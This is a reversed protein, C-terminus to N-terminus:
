PPRETYSCHTGTRIAQDLHAAAAPAHSRIRSIATRIARTVNVRARESQSGLRRARGGIGVAAALEHVLFDQEARARSARETDHWQEAEALEEGLDALRRRYAARATADLVEDGAAAGVLHLEDAEATRDHGAPMSANALQVMDLAALERGPNGILLDLDRLGLIDPLRIMTGEHTLAWYGGEPILTLTAAVPTGPQDLVAQLRTMGCDAAIAGAEALAQGARDLDTGRARKRLLQAYEQLTRALLPRAELRRHCAVATVFHREAADFDGSMAALGALYLDVSGACMVAGAAVAVRDAYPALARYIPRAHQSAGLTVCARALMALAWVYVMDPRLGSLGTTALEEFRGRAQDRAGHEADILVLACAHAVSLRSSAVLRRLQLEM